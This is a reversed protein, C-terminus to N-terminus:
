GIVTLNQCYKYLKAQNRSIKYLIQLTPLFFRLDTVDTDRHICTTKWKLQKENKDDEMKTTKWKLQRGSQRRGNQDHEM